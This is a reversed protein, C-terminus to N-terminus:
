YTILYGPYSKQNDYIIYHGGNGNNFSDYLVGQKGPIAAPMRAAQGGGQSSSLGTIVTCFFMQKRGNASHAYGNSYCSNDAFYLGIGNAGVASYRMDLGSEFSYINFPDTQRTGHFLHKVLSLGQLQPHKQLMREFESRVTQYIQKNYIKKIEIIQALNVQSIEQNMIDITAQIEILRPDRKALTKLFKFAIYQFEFSERDLIETCTFENVQNYKPDAYNSPFKFSEIMNWQFKQKKEKLKYSYITQNKLDIASPFQNAECSFILKRDGINFWECHDINQLKCKNYIDNLKQIEENVEVVKTNTKDKNLYFVWQRQILVVRTLEPQRSFTQLFFVEIEDEENEMQDLIKVKLEEDELFFYFYSEVKNKAEEQLKVEAQLTFDYQKKDDLHKIYYHHITAHKEGGFCLYNKGQDLVYFLDPKEYVDFQDELPGQVTELGEYKNKIKATDICYVYELKEKKMKAIDIIDEKRVQRVQNQYAMEKVEEQVNLEQQWNNQDKYDFADGFTNYWDYWKILLDFGDM